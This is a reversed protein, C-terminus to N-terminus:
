RKNDLHWLTYGGIALVALVIIIHTSSFQQINGLASSIASPSSQYGGAVRRNNGLYASAPFGTVPYSSTGGSAYAANAAGASRVPAGSQVGATGGYLGTRMGM